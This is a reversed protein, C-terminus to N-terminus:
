GERLGLYSLMPGVEGHQVIGQLREYVGAVQEM